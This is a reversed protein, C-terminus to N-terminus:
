LKHKFKTVQQMNRLEYKAELDYNIPYLKRVSFNNYGFSKETLHVKFIFSRGLTDLIEPVNEAMNENDLLPEAAPGSVIIAAPTTNDTVKLQLKYRPVPNRVRKECSKCWPIGDKMLHAKTCRPYAMYFWTSRELIGIMTAKFTFTTGKNDSKQLFQLGEMVTIRNGFLLEEIATGPDIKKEKNDIVVVQTSDSFKHVTLGTVIVIVNQGERITKANHIPNAIDGWLAITMRTGRENEITIDTKRADVDSRKRIIEPGKVRRLKGIVYTTYTTDGCRKQLQDM